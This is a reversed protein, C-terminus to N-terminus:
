KLLAMKRTAVYNDAVIRYFYVGSSLRSADFRVGYKGASQKQNVLTEVGRGLIDYIKLNVDASKPLDYSIMTSPNFPNPYNAYLQFSKPLNGVASKVTTPEQFPTISIMVDADFHDTEEGGGTVNYTSDVSYSGEFTYGSDNQTFSANVQPSPPYTYFSTYDLDIDDTFPTDMNGLSLKGNDVEIASYTSVGDFLVESAFYFTPSSPGQLCGLDLDNTFEEDNSIWGTSSLMTNSYEESSPSTANYTDTILKKASSITLNGYGGYVLKTNISTDTITSLIYQKFKGNSRFTYDRYNYYKWGSGQLTDFATNTHDYATKSIKLEWVRLGPDNITVIGDGYSGRQKHMPTTYPFYIARLNAAGTVNKATFSATAEGNKDTVVSSQNFSGNGCSITLTRDALPTGDCDLVQFTVPITQLANMNQQSPIITIQASLAINTGNDRLNKQYARIEDFVPEIQSIASTAAAVADSATSFDAEGSAIRDRTYGDELYVNFHYQGGSSDLTAWILYDVGGLPGAPPTDGTWYNQLHIKVLSDPLTALQNALSGQSWNICQAEPDDNGIAGLPVIVDELSIWNFLAQQSATTAYAGTASDSPPPMAVNMQLGYIVVQPPPCNDCQALVTGCMAILVVLSFMKDIPRM